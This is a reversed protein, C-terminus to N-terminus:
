SGKSRARALQRPAEPPSLDRERERKGQLAPGITSHNDHEKEGASGRMARTVANQSVFKAKCVTLGSFGEAQM